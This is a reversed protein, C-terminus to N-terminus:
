SGELNHLWEHGLAKEATIRRKPDLDVLGRVFDSFVEGGRDKREKFLNYPTDVGHRDEWCMELMKRSAAQEEGDGLHRMLGDVSDQTGFHSVMRQLRIM